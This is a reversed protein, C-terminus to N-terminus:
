LAASGEWAMSPTLPSAAAAGIFGACLFCIPSFPASKRSHQPTFIGRHNMSEDVQLNELTSKHDEMRFCKKLETKRPYFSVIM